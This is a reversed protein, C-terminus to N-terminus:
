HFNLKPPPGLVNLTQHQSFANATQKKKKKKKKPSGRRAPARFNTRAVCAATVVDECVSAFDDPRSVTAVNEHPSYM